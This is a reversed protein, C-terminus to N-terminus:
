VTEYTQEKSAIQDVNPRAICRMTVEASIRRKSECTEVNQYSSKKRRASQICHQRAPYEPLSGGHVGYVCLYCIASLSCIQYAGRL